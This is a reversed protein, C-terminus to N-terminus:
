FHFFSILIESEIDYFINGPIYLFMVGLFCDVEVKGGVTGDHIVFNNIEEDVMVYFYQDANVAWLFYM